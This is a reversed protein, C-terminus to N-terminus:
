APGDDQGALIAYAAQPSAAARLAKLFAEDRLPKVLGALMSLENGQQPAVFAILIDVPVDDPSTCGLPADLLIMAATSATVGEAKAHPLLVGKGVATSGLKEREVLAEQVPEADIGLAAALMQSLHAIAESKGALAPELRIREPTIVNAWSM